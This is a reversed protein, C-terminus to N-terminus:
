KLVSVTIIRINENNTINTQKHTHTHTHTHRHIQTDERSKHELSEYITDTRYNDM